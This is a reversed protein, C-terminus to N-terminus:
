DKSPVLSGSHSGVIRHECVGEGEGVGLRSSMKNIKKKVRGAREKVRGTDAETGGTM